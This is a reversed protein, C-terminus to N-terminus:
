GVVIRKGHREVNAIVEYHITDMWGALREATLRQDGSRGLLVVETGARADPIDTVDVITMNMMVRGLVPARRGNVLVYARGTLARSYGNYYGVPLIAIRTPRMVEHTRGYGVTEGVELRKVQAIRTKWSMVPRLHVDLLKGQRAGVLTTESPWLGYIGIGVRLMGCYTEPYLISAATCATHLIPPRVGLAALRDIRARFTRLQEMAFTNDTTDEVNAFHTYAGEVVVDKRLARSRSLKALTPLDGEVLGQRNTGTEIKLHVSMRGPRERALDEMADLSAVTISLRALAATKLLSRPTPGLVLIPLRIGADRLTLAEDQSFTALWDAGLEALIRSVEVIGHGYANAKVVFMLKTGATGGGTLHRFVAYNHALASRDIEVWSLAGVPAAPPPSGATGAVAQEPGADVLVRPERSEESWKKQV